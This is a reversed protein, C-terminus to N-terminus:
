REVGADQWGGEQLGEVSASVSQRLALHPGKMVPLEYDCRQACIGTGARSAWVIVFNGNAYMAVSPDNQTSSTNTNVRVEGPQAVGNADHRQAFVGSGDTQGSQTGNDSWVVVYSGIDPTAADVFVLEHRRSEVEHASSQAFEGGAELTRQEVDTAFPAPDVLGPTFDASDLIRSELTEIVPRRPAARKTM